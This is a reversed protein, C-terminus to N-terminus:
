KIDFKQSKFRSETMKETVKKNSAKRRYFPPGKRSCTLAGIRMAVVEM